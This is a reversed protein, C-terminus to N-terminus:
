PAKLWLMYWARFVPCNLCVFDVILEEGLDILGDKLDWIKDPVRVVADTWKNVATSYESTETMGKLAITRPQEGHLPNQGKALEWSLMKLVGWAAPKDPQSAM